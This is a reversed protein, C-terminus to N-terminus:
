HLFPQTADFKRSNFVAKNALKSPPWLEELFLFFSYRGPRQHSALLLNCLSDSNPLLYFAVLQPIADLKLLVEQLRSLISVCAM